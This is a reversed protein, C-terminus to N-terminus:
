KYIVVKTGIPITDYIWKADDLKMRICGHSSPTGMTYDACVKPSDGMNYPSSHFLYEGGIFGTAWWCRYGFSDFYSTRMTTRYEGEPTPHNSTGTSCSFEKEPLWNDKSGKFVYTKQEKLNVLILYSSTSSYGQAKSVSSNLNIVGDAGAYYTEGKVTFSQNAYLEGSAKAYYYKTNSIKVWGTKMKGDAGLYYLKNKDKITTERSYIGKTKAYYWSGKYKFWGTAKKMEGNANFFRLKGDSEAFGTAMAADDGLYYAKSGEWRISNRRLVGGKNGYYWKGNYKVWGASTKVKGESNFYYYKGNVKYVGSTLKGDDGVYYMTSGKGVSANRRILGGKEAYYWTGDVQVWGSKKKGEGDDDFFRLKGNVTYLGGTLAGDEGAYYVKDGSWIAENRRVKGGKNVFYWNNNYKVWGNTPKFEGSGLAYYIEGDSGYILGTKMAGDPAVYYSKGGSTIIQDRVVRSESNVYYWIENVKVWKESKLLAGDSAAYVFEDGAWFLGVAMVGESDLYYTGSPITVFQGKLVRGTEDTRYWKGEIECWANVIPEDSANRIYTVGADDYFHDGEAAFANGAPMLIMMFFIIMVSAVIWRNLSFRTRM